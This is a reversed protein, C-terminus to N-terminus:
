DQAPDPHGDVYGQDLKRRILPELDPEPDLLLAREWQYNAERERGAKWYADGLHDNIIPDQPRLATARELHEVAKDYEGMKFYVWGLSDVIYGDNPRAAVANTIMAHAVDLNVGQETWSYALYNLVQPQGPELDLAKRFNREAQEWQKNREYAIGLVYYLAWDEEGQSLALSTQYAEIAAEYNKQTRYLDGLESPPVPDDPYRVALDKLVAEAQELDDLARHSFAKGLDAERAYPSEPAILDFAAIADAPRRERNFLRGVLIIEDDSLPRLHAAMQMYVMATEAAGETSLGSAIDFLAQALGDEASGIPLVAPDGAEARALTGKVLPHDGNTEALTRYWSLAVDRQGAAELVAGAALVLRIPPTEIDTMLASMAAASRQIEGNHADILADHFGFLVGAGRLESELRLDAVDRNGAGAASWAEALPFLLRNAGRDVIQAANRQAGKWDGRAAADVTLAVAILPQESGMDALAEARAMARAMQGEHLDAILARELLIQNDPDARTADALFRSAAARDGMRQAAGAGLYAGADLDPDAQAPGGTLLIGTLLLGTVLATATTSKLSNTLARAM